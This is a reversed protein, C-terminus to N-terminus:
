RVQLEPFIYSHQLLDVFDDFRLTVDYLLRLKETTRDKKKREVYTNSDVVMVDWTKSLPLNAAEDRLRLAFRGGAALGTRVLGNTQLATLERGRRAGIGIVGDPKESPGEGEEIRVLATLKDVFGEVLVHQAVAGVEEPRRARNRYYVYRGEVKAYMAEVDARSHSRGAIKIVEGQALAMAPALLAMGVAFRMM